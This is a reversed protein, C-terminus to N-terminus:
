DNNEEPTTENVLKSARGISDHILEESADYKAFKVMDTSNMFDKLFNRDQNGLPSKREEMKRLFEATTQRKAHIDFRSELYERVIDSLINICKGSTIEHLGFSKNLSDLSQIALAWPTLVVLNKKSKNRLFLAIAVSLLLLIVAILISYFFVNSEVILAESKMKSAVSLQNDLVSIKKSTISPYKVSLTQTGYNESSFDIKLSGEPILGDVFPQVKYQIQWISHGWKNSNKTIIPKELLQSGKGLTIEASVPERNWPASFYLKMNVPTGLFVESKPSVVTKEYKAPLNQKEISRYKLYISTLCAFAIVIVVAIFILFYKIFKRM